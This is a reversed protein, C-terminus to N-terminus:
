EKIWNIRNPYDTILGDCGIAKVYKMDSIENVTWPIVRVDKTHLESVIEATLMKFYPSWIDPVFGLKSLNYEVDNNDDPEILASLSVKPYNENKIQNHWYKLIEFDFSQITVREAPLHKAIIKVVLDSFEKPEPQSINYEESLSKLEINYQLPPLGKQKAYNEATKIVEKLLPKYAAIKQQEPFAPNGRKGVDYKKIERYNLKYTNTETDLLVAEGNPFTSIPPNFYPEHSVVVKGDKSIVVDLELTHVGEDIARIFAPITNEPALGRAGRHGQIEFTKMQAAVQASCVICLFFVCLYKM